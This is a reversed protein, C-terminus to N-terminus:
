QNPFLINVNEELRIVKDREDAISDNYVVNILKNFDSPKIDFEEKLEEAIEKIHQKEGAIMSLSKVGENVANRIKSLRELDYISLDM